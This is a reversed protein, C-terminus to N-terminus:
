SIAAWTNARKRIKASLVIPLDQEAVEPKAALMPGQWSAAKGENRLSPFPDRNLLFDEEVTLVKAGTDEKRRGKDVEERGRKRAQGIGTEAM